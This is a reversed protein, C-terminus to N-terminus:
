PSPKDPSRRGEQFRCPVPSNRQADHPFARRAHPHGSALVAFLVHDAAKELPDLLLGLRRGAALDSRDHMAPRHMEDVAIRVGILPRFVRQAVDGM